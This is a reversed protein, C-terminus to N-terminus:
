ISEQPRRTGSEDKCGGFDMPNVWSDAEQDGGDM